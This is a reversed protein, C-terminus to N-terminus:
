SKLGRLLPMLEILKEINEDFEGESAGYEQQGSAKRYKKRTTLEEAEEKEETSTVTVKLHKLAESLKQTYVISKKGVRQRFESKLADNLFYQGDFNAGYDGDRSVLIIKGQLAQSCEIIWEWNFADGYSTDDNKRPPYGLMFRKLAREKISNKIDMERKLVHDTPCGFISEVATYVPDYLTPSKIVNRAREAMEKKRKDIEKKSKKLANSINSEDMVAPLAIDLDLKLTKLNDQIAKQRNKLFEMEVQYTCIISEKVSELKKLLSLSTENRSRYFDLFINTDIFAYTKIERKAM